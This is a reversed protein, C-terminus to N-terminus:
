EDDVRLRDPSLRVGDFKETLEILAEDKVVGVQWMIKEVVKEVDSVGIGRCRLINQTNLDPEFDPSNTKITLM